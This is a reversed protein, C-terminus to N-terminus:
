LSPAPLYAVRTAPTRPAGQRVYRNLEDILTEHVERAPGNSLQQTPSPTGCTMGIIQGPIEIQPACRQGGPLRHLTFDPDPRPVTVIAPQQDAIRWQAFLHSVDDFPVSG